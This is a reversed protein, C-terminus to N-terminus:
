TGQDARRAELLEWTPRVEVDLKDGVKLPGRFQFRGRHGQVVQGTWLRVRVWMGNIRVVEAEM